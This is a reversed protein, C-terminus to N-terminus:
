YLAVFPLRYILRHHILSASQKNRTILRKGNDAVKKLYSESCVLADRPSSEERRSLVQASACTSIPSDSTIFTQRARFRFSVTNTSPMPSLSLRLELVAGDDRARSRASSNGSVNIPRRERENIQEKYEFASALPSLYLRSSLGATRIRRGDSTGEGEATLTKGRDLAARSLGSRSSLLFNVARLCSFGGGVIESIPIEATEGIDERAGRRWIERIINRVTRALSFLTSRSRGTLPRLYKVFRSV